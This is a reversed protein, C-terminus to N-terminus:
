QQLSSGIAIFQELGDKCEQIISVEDNSQHHLNPLQLRKVMSGYGSKVLSRKFRDSNATTVYPCQYLAQFAMTYCTRSVRLFSYLTGCSINDRNSQLISIIQLLIENPFHPPPIDPQVLNPSMAPAPRALWPYLLHFSTMGAASLLLQM